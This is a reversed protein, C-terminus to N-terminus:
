RMWLRMYRDILRRGVTSNDRLWIVPAYAPRVTESDIYGHRALTELPGISLVYLIPLAVLAWGIWGWSRRKKPEDSM